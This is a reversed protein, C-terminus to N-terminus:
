LHELYVSGEKSNHTTELKSPGNVNAKDTQVIGIIKYSKFSALLPLVLQLCQQLHVEKAEYEGSIQKVVLQSDNYITLCQVLLSKVLHLGTILAENEAVNNITMFNFRIAKEVRFGEQSTLIIRVGSRARTVSGDVFLTWSPDVFDDLIPKSLYDIEM